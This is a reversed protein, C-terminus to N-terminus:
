DAKVVVSTGNEVKKIVSPLEIDGESDFSFTGVTGRYDRLATLAMQITESERAGQRLVQALVGLSDYAFAGVFSPEAGYQQKYAKVFASTQPDSSREDYLTSSFYAGEAADRVQGLFYPISLTNDALLQGDYGSERIQRFCSGYGDGFGTIYIAQPDDVKVKEIQARVDRDMIGFTDVAVVKGGGSQFVAEFARASADGFENNIHLIAATSIDLEALAYDAISAGQETAQRWVRFVWKNQQPIGPGAAVITVLPVANEGALPALNLSVVDGSSILVPPKRLMLKNFAAIADKPSDKSDEVLLKLQRGDIGGGANVEGVALRLANHVEEGLPAQPGTLFLIAGIEIEGSATPETKGSIYLVMGAAIVVALGVVVWIVRNKM